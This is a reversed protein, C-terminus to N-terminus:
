MSLTDFFKTTVNNKRIDFSLNTSICLVAHFVNVIMLIKRAILVHFFFKLVRVRNRLASKKKSKMILRDCLYCCINEITMGFSLIGGHVLM